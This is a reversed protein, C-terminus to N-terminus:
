FISNKFKEPLNKLPIVKFDLYNISEGKECNSIINLIEKEYMEDFKRNDAHIPALAIPQGNRLAVGKKNAIYAYVPSITQGNPLTVLCDKLKVLDYYGDDRGESEDMKKLQDEDLFSVWVQSLTNPSDVMTAPVAEYSTKYYTYVVDVNKASAKVVALNFIKKELLRSPCANSGYSLIAYRDSLPKLSLKDLLSSLEIEKGKYDVIAKSLSSNSVIHLEHVFDISLFYSYSPRKGPYEEKDFPYSSTHEEMM